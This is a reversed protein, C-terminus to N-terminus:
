RWGGRRARECRRGSTAHAFRRPSISIITVLNEAEYTGPNFGPAKLSHTTDVQMRRCTSPPLAQPPPPSPLHFPQLSQLHLDPGHIFLVLGRGHRKERVMFPALREEVPRPHVWEGPKDECWKAADSLASIDWQASSLFPFAAALDAV